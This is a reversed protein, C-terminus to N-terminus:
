FIKDIWDDARKLCSQCGQGLSLEKQLLPLDVEGSCLERIDKVSVCFCECILTEEDLKQAEHILDNVTEIQHLFDKDM